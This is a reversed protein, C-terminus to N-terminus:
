KHSLLMWLFIALFYIGIAAFLWALGEGPAVGIGREHPFHFSSRLRARQDLAAGVAILIWGSTATILLVSALLKPISDRCVRLLFMVGMCILLLAFGICSLSPVSQRSGKWVPALGPFWAGLASCLGAVIFFVAAVAAFIKIM